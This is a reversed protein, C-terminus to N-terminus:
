LVRGGLIYCCLMSTVGFSVLKSLLVGFSAPSVPAPTPCATAAPVFCYCQYPDSEDESPCEVVDTTTMEQQQMTCPLPDLEVIANAAAGDACVFNSLSLDESDRDPVFHVCGGSASVNAVLDPSHESTVYPQIPVNGDINGDVILQTFCNAGTCLNASGGTLSCDKPITCNVNGEINYRSNAGKLRMQFMSYGEPLKVSADIGDGYATLSIRGRNTVNVTSLDARLTTGLGTLDLRSNSGCSYANTEYANVVKLVKFNTFGPAINVRLPSGNNVELWSLQDKPAQILVGFEADNSLNNLTTRNFEIGLIYTIGKITTYHVVRGLDPPSMWILTDNFGDPAPEITWTVRPLQGCGEIASDDQPPGTNLWGVNLQIIGPTDIREQPEAGDFSGSCWSSEISTVTVVLYLSVIAVLRQYSSVLRSMM